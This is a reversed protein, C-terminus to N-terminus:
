IDVKVHGPADVFVDTVLLVTRLKATYETLIGVNCETTQHWLDTELSRSRQSIM